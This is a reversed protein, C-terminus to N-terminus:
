TELTKCHWLDLLVPLGPSVKGSLHTGSGLLILPLLYIPTFFTLFSNLRVMFQSVKSTFPCKPCILLKGKIHPQELHNMLVLKSETKFDCQMCKLLNPMSDKKEANLGDEKSAELSEELISVSGKLSDVSRELVTVKDELSGAPETLALLTEKLGKVLLELLVAARKLSLVIQQFSQTNQEESCPGRFTEAEMSGIIKTLPLVIGKLAQVGQLLAAVPNKSDVTGETLETSKELIKVTGELNKIIGKLIWVNVLSEIKYNKVYEALQNQGLEIFFSGLPSTFYPDTHM